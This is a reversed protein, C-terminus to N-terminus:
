TQWVTSPQDRMVNVAYRLSAAILAWLRADLSATERARRHLREVCRLSAECQRILADMPRLGQRDGPDPAIRPAGGADDRAQEICRWVAECMTGTDMDTTDIVYGRADQWGQETEDEFTRADPLEGDRRLIRRERVEKSATLVIVACGHEHAWVAEEVTRGDDIVLPRAASELRKEAALLLPNPEFERLFRGVKQLYPRRVAKSAGQLWPAAIALVQEIPTAM